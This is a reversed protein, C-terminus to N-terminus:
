NKLSLSRNATDALRSLISNRYHIGIPIITKEIKVQHAEIFDIHALSIVYSKHVRCFFSEPLWAFITNMNGRLLIKKNATHICLYNSEKSVYLIDKIKVQHTKSGTKILLCEKDVGLKAPIEQKLKKANLQESAKNIAQLFREFMIPKVLYDVACWEYSEVAYSSYATTFIIVPKQSLAQLFQLGNLKPMNVDLFIIDVKEVQLFELAKLPNRFTGALTLSPTDEVYRILVDLAKPEDDLAICKM